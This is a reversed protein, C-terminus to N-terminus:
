LLKSENSHSEVYASEQQKKQIERELNSIIKQDFDKMKQPLQRLKDKSKRLHEEALKLENVSLEALGWYVETYLDASTRVINDIGPYDRSINLADSFIDRGESLKGSSILFSAHLRLTALKDMRSKAKDFASKFYKPVNELNIGTQILQNAVSNYESASIHSPFLRVIEDARVTLVFTEATISDLIGAGELSSTDIHKLLEYREKPLDMLKHIIERLESRAERVDDRHSRYYSVLTTGFSFLLAFTSVVVSPETYWSQSISNNIKRNLLEMEKRISDIEPKNQIETRATQAFSVQAILTILTISIVPLFISLLGHKKKM